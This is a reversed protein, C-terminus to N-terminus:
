LDDPTPRTLTTLIGLGDANVAAAALEARKMWQMGRQVIPHEIGL